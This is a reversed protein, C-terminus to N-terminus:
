VAVSEFFASCLRECVMRVPAKQKVPHTALNGLLDCIVGPSSRFPPPRYSWSPTSRTHFADDFFFSCLLLLLLLLLLLVLLLM